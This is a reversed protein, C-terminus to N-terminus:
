DTRCSSSDLIFSDLHRFFHFSSVKLCPSSVSSSSPDSSPRSTSCSPKRPSAISSSGYSLKSGVEQREQPSLSCSGDKCSPANSVLQGCFTSSFLGAWRLKSCLASTKFGAFWRSNIQKPLSPRLRECTHRRRDQFAYISLVSSHLAGMVPLIRFNKMRLTVAERPTPV